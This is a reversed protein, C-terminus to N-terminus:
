AAASHALTSIRTAAMVIGRTDLASCVDTAGADIAATWMEEDALRHTCVICTNAFDRHLRQIEPLSAVEIDVIAVDARHRVILERLQEVTQAVHISHFHKYLQAALSKSIRADTQLLALNLLKM